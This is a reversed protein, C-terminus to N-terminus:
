QGSDMPVNVPFGYENVAKERIYDMIIPFDTEPDIRKRKGAISLIKGKEFLERPEIELKMSFGYKLLVDLTPVPYARPKAELSEPVDELPLIWPTVYGDDLGIDLNRKKEINKAAQRAFKGPKVRLRWLEKDLAKTFSSNYNDKNETLVKEALYIGLLNSFNDEVTFASDFEPIFILARYGFWTLIEHWTSGAYSVHAGLKISIENAIKEKEAVSIRGWYEPYDLEIFYKSPEPMELSFKEKGKMINSFIIKSFVYAFDASHRLHDLDILGAECTYIQGGKEFFGNHKGLSYPNPYATMLSEPVSGSRWKVGHPNCASFLVSALGLAMGFATRNLIRKLHKM